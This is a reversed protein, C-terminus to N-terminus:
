GEPSALLVVSILVLLVALTWLMGLHVKSLAFRKAHHRHPAVKGRNTASAGFPFAAGKAAAPAHSSRNRMPPGQWRSSSKRLTNKLSKYMIDDFSSTNAM